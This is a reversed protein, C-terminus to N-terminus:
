DSFGSLLLGDNRALGYAAVRFGPLFLQIGAQAPIVGRSELYDFLRVERRWHGAMWLWSMAQLWRHHMLRWTCCRVLWSKQNVWAVWRYAACLTTRISRSKACCAVWIPRSGVQLLRM